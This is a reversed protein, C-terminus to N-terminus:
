HQRLWAEAEAHTAFIATPLHAPIQRLIAECIERSLDNDAVFAIAKGAGSPKMNGSVMKINEYRVNALPREFAIIRRCDPGGEARFGNVADVVEQLDFRNGFRIWAIDQDKDVKYTVPM